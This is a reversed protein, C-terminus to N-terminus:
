NAGEFITLSQGNHLKMVALRVEKFENTLVVVQVENKGYKKGDFHMCWNEEKLTAMYKEEMREAAKISAKYVGSQSPTPIDIGSKLLEKCIKAANRTSVNSTQVMKVAAKTSCTVKKVRPEYSEDDSSAYFETDEELSSITTDSLNIDPVLATTVKKKLLAAKSPHIIMEKATSYGVDGKTSTQVAYFKKDEMSLWIGEPNTVDFLEGFVITPNGNPRKLFKCYRDLLKEVKRKISSELVCPFNLKSWLDLLEKAIIQCRIKRNRETKALANYRGIIVIQKQIRCMENLNKEINIIERRKTTSREFHTLNNEWVVSNKLVASASNRSSM